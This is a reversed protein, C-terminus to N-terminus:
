VTSPSGCILRFTCACGCIFPLTCVIYFSGFHPKVAEWASSRLRWPLLPIRSVCMEVPICARAPHARLPVFLLPVFFALFCLFFQAPLGCLFSLLFCPKVMKQFTDSDHTFNLIKEHVNSSSDIYYILRLYEDISIFAPSCISRFHFCVARRRSVVQLASSKLRVAPRNPCHPFKWPSFFSHRLQVLFLGFFISHFLQGRENHVFRFRIKRSYTNASIKEMTAMSQTFTSFSM